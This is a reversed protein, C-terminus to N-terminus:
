AGALGGAALIGAGGITVTYTTNGGRSVTRSTPSVSMTFSGSSVVLTVNVSHALIGSTGTITLQYSGPPTTAATAVPLTSSGSGNLPAPNFTATAGSPGGAVPLAVAGTFGAGATVTTTFPVSGGAAVRRSSPTAAISFDPVTITRTAATSTLGGNDTVRLSATYTGPTSYVVDGANQSTSSSPNGGPFSWAYSAITGDPDLGSG